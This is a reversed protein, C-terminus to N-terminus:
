RAARLSSARCSVPCNKELESGFTELGCDYSRWVQCPYGFKPDRYTESDTMKWYEQETTNAAPHCLKCSVPCALMVDRQTCFGKARADACSLPQGCLTVVTPQIDQCIPGKKTDCDCLGCTRPCKSRVDAMTNLDKCVPQLQSCSAPTEKKDPGILIYGTEAVDECTPDCDCPESTQPAPSRCNSPDVRDGLGDLCSVSITRRCEGTTGTKTCPGFSDATWESPAHPPHVGFPETGPQGQYSWSWGFDKQSATKGEELLSAHGAIDLLDHAHTTKSLDWWGSNEAPNPAFVPSQAVEMKAPAGGGQGHTGILQPDCDYLMNVEEYDCPALRDRQGVVHEMKPDSTDFGDRIPGGSEPYMMISGYCFYWYKHKEDGIYAQDDGTYQDKWDPPINRWKMKLYPGKVEGNPLTIAKEGDPRKQTHALGLVHGIEHIVSGLQRPGNCWGLNVTVQDEPGPYGMSSACCTSPTKFMAFMNPLKSNRVFRVCTVAEWAALAQTFVNVRDASLGAQFDYPVRVYGDPDKPWPWGSGCKGPYCSRWSSKETCLKCTLPCAAQIMYRIRPKTSECFKALMGACATAPKKGICVLQPSDICLGLTQTQLMSVNMLLEPSATLDDETIERDGTELGSVSGVLNPPPLFSVSGSSGEANDFDWPQVVEEDTLADETHNTEGCGSAISDMYFDDEYGVRVLVSPIGGDVLGGTYMWVLIACRPDDLPVSSTPLLLQKAPMKHDWAASNVISAGCRCEQQGDVSPVLGALDLGKSTCFNSCDVNTQEKALIWRYFPLGSRCPNPDKPDLNGCTMDLYEVPDESDSPSRPFCGAQESRTTIFIPEFPQHSAFTSPAGVETSAGSESRRFCSAQLKQVQVHDKCPPVSHTSKNLGMHGQLLSWRSSKVEKELQAQLKKSGARTQLLQAFEASEPCDEQDCPGAVAEAAAAARAVGTVAHFDVTEHAESVLITALLLYVHLM